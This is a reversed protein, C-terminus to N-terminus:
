LGDDPQPVFDTQMEVCRMAHGLLIIRLGVSIAPKQLIQRSEWDIDDAKMPGCRMQEIEVFRNCAPGVSVHGPVVRLDAVARVRLTGPTKAERLVISCDERPARKLKQCM